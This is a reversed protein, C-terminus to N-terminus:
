LTSGARIRVQSGAGTGKVSWKGASAKFQSKMPLWERCDQRGKRRSYRTSMELESKRAGKLAMNEGDKHGKM